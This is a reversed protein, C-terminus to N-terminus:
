NKPIPSAAGPAGAGAGPAAAKGSTSSFIQKLGPLATLDVSPGIFVENLLRNGPGGDRYLFGGASLRFYKNLRFGVGYVFAKNSSVRSKANGSLDGLSVGLALSLRSKWNVNAVGNPDLDVPGFLYINGVFFDRLENLRPAYIAGIDFGAYKQLDTTVSNVNMQVGETIQAVVSVQFVSLVTTYADDFRKLISDATNQLAPDSTKLQDKHTTYIQHLDGPSMGAQVGQLKLAPDLVAKLLSDLNISALQSTRLGTLTAASVDTIAVCPLQNQLIKTLAGNASTIDQLLQDLEQTVASPGEDATVAFFAKLRSQFADSKLLQDVIASQRTKAIKGTMKLILNITTDSPLQGLVVSWKTGSITGMAAPTTQGLYTASITSLDLLDTIKVTGCALDSVDGNITVNKGYPLKGGKTLDSYQVTQACVTITGAM